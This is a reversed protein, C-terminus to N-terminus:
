QCSPSFSFARRHYSRATRHISLCLSRSCPLLFNALSSRRKQASAASSKPMAFFFRQSAASGVLGGRCLGWAGARSRGRRERQASTVAFAPCRAVRMAGFSKPKGTVLDTGRAILPTPPLRGPSGPPGSVDRRRWWTPMPRCGLAAPGPPSAKTGPFVQAKILPLRGPASSLVQSLM